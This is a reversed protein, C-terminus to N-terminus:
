KLDELTYITEKKINLLTNLRCLEVLLENAYIGYNQYINFSKLAIHYLSNANYAQL